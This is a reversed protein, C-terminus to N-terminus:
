AFERVVLAPGGCFFFVLKEVFDDVCEEEGAQM